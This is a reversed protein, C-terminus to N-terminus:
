CGPDRAVTETIVPSSRGTTVDVTYIQVTGVAQACTGTYSWSITGSSTATAATIQQFAQGPQAVFRNVLGGPTYNSGSVTFTTTQTGSTPTVSLTPNVAQLFSLNIQGTATSTLGNADTVKLTITNSPTGFTFSLANSSGIVTGNSAWQYAVIASSGAISPAADFGITVNGNVPVSYSLTSGDGGAKGGGIMAFHATPGVTQQQFSLNIQGTATSTLGNADTVKLSITNSPTGFTYNLMRGSGIVTGNSAWQYSTIAGSGPVTPAADFMVAVNGNVPVLYSLTSGDGGSKGGGSMTFHATPGTSIQISLNIQATATSSLGNADTVTLTITNSPTGFTYSLIPTTGIITGNSAWRYTVISSGGAASPSADFNITVNGNTPVTFSLTAGDNGSKGGGSMTFHAIPGAAQQFNLNLQASAVSTMGNADTVRLTITNGPTGFTYTLTRATGIVTGNSAWQYATIPAGGPVSSGGDFAITVNGNVRVTYNLTSGDTGSRGGGSMTFHATPPAATQQFALNLQATATSVLGNGDTVRLMITNSATGFPATATVGSAFVTGNSLWEYKAILTTGPTSRSADFTVQVSGNVPVTYMVVGNELTSKGQATMTLHAIPGKDSSATIKAWVTPSGSVPLPRGADDALEWDDRYTGAAAPARMDVSFAYSSGPPVDRGVIVPGHTTSLPGTKYRLSWGPGWDCTSSNRITWTKTFTSAPVVNTGDTYTESELTASPACNPIVTTTTVASGHRQGADVASLTIVHPGVSLTNVHLTGGTGLVGDRDSTWTLAAGTVANGAADKATGTFDVVAGARYSQGSPPSTITVTPPLIPGILQATAIIRAPSGSVGPIFAEAVQQGDVLALTWTVQAIGNKDTVAAVPLKAGPTVPRFNVWIGELPVPNFHGLKVGTIRVAIPQALPQGPTGTQHDGGYVSMVTSQDLLAQVSQILARANHYMSIYASVAGNTADWLASACAYSSLDFVCERTDMALGLASTSVEIEDPSVGASEDIQKLMAQLVVGTCLEKTAKIDGSGEAAVCAAIQLQEVSAGFERWRAAFDDFSAGARSASLGPQRVALRTFRDRQYATRLSVLHQRVRPAIPVNRHIDAVGTSDIVAYDVATNTWNSFVLIRSGVFSLAPRGLSDPLVTIRTQKDASVYVVGASLTATRDTLGIVKDGSRHVAAISAATDSAVAIALDGLFRGVAVAASAGIGGVAAVIRGNGVGAASVTGDASVTAVKSNSSTWTPTAASVANGFRDVAKVSLRSSKGVELVVTDPAVVITAPAGAGAHLVFNAVLSGTAKATVTQDGATTGLTVSNTAVGAANTVSTPASLRLTGSNSTWSVTVGSMATGRATLLKVSLPASLSLGVEGSQGDGGVISITTPVASGSPTPSPAAPTGHDSCGIVWLTCLAALGRRSVVCFRMGAEKTNGPNPSLIPLTM